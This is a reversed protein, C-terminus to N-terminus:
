VQYLRLAKMGVPSPTSQNVRNRKLVSTQSPPANLCRDTSYVGEFTKHSNLHMIPDDLAVRIVYVSTRLLNPRSTMQLNAVINVRCSATAQNDTSILTETTATAKMSAELIVPYEPNTLNPTLVTDEGSLTSLPYCKKIDQSSVNLANSMLGGKCGLIKVNVTLSTGSRSM